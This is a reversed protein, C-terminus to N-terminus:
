DCCIIEFNKTVTLGSNPELEKDEDFDEFNYSCQLYRSETAILQEISNNLLNMTVEGILCSKGLDECLEVGNKAAASSFSNGFCNKPTVELNGLKSDIKAATYVAYRGKLDSNVKIIGGRAPLENSNSMITYTAISAIISVMLAIAVMIWIEKQKM